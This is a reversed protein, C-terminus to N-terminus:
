ERLRSGSDDFMVLVPEERTQLILSVIQEGTLKTPNGASASICSAGIERSVEEVAKRAATDGDTIFIVHRREEM